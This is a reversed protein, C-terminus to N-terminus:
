ILTIYDKLILKRTHKTQNIEIAEWIMFNNEEFKKQNQM